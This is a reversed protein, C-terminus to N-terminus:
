NLFIARAHYAFQMPTGGSSAYPNVQGIDFQLATTAKANVVFTAQAFTSLTNTSLGSTVPVTITAGSDQDTFILRSDPLTSSTTAAQSVVLYVTVLYTGASASAVLNTAAVNATQTLRNVSTIVPGSSGNSIATIIGQADVTLNTSTYSGPTVGAQTSVAITNNPWSGTITIDAGQVLAPTATGTGGFAIGVLGTAIDSGSLVASVFNTGNGRLYHGAAAAGGIEFGTTANFINAGITGTLILSGTITVSGTINVGALVTLTTTGSNFILAPSGALAGGNNFQLAGNPGAAVANVNTNITTTSGSQIASGASPQGSIPLPMLPLIPINSGYHTNVLTANGHMMDPSITGDFYPGKPNQNGPPASPIIPASDVPHWSEPLGAEQAITKEKENM